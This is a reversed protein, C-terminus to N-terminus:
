TTWQEAQESAQKARDSVIVDFLDAQSIEDIPGIAGIWLIRDFLSFRHFQYYVRQDGDLAAVGSRLHEPKCDSGKLPGDVYIPNIDRVAQAAERGARVRRVM